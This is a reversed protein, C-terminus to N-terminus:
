LGAPAAAASSGGGEEAQAVAQAGSGTGGPEQEAGEVPRFIWEAYSRAGKSEEGLEPPLDHIRIPQGQALSHIGLIQGGQVVLGWRAQGSFPDRYIRRLHRVPMPFRKDDLLDELRAPYVQQPGAKRYRALARAMETGVALLEAERERRMEQQWVVGVQAALLGLGAVLFLVLLYTYGGQRVPYSPPRPRGAAAPRVHCNWM